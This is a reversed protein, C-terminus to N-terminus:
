KKMVGERECVLKEAYTTGSIYIVRCFVIYPGDFMNATYNTSGTAGVNTGSLRVVIPDFVALNTQYNTTFELKANRLVYTGRNNSHDSSNYNDHTNDTKVNGTQVKPTTVQGAVESNVSMSNTRTKVPAGETKGAKEPTDINPDQSVSKYGHILNYVGSKVHIRHTTMPLAMTSFGLIDMQTPSGLGQVFGCLPGKEDLKNMDRYRVIGGLSFTLGMLADKGGYGKRAIKRAFVYTSDNGGIWKQKDSTEDVDAKLGSEEALKKITESSTGSYSKNNHDAFWPVSDYWATIDYFYCNAAYGVKFTAVRFNDTKVNSGLGWTLALKSGDNLQITSGISNSEDQIRIVLCPVAYEYKEIIHLETITCGKEPLPTGDITLSYTIDNMRM